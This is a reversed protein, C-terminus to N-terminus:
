AAAGEERATLTAFQLRAPIHLAQALECADDATAATVTGHWQVYSRACRAIVTWVIAPQSNMGCTYRWQEATVHVVACKENVECRRPRGAARRELPRGGRRKRDPARAQDSARLRMRARERPRVCPLFLCRCRPGATVEFGQGTGFNKRSTSDASARRASAPVELGWGTRFKKQSALEVSTEKPSCCRVALDDLVLHDTLVRRDDDRPPATHQIGCFIVRLKALFNVGRPLTM